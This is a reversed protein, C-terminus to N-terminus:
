RLIADREHDHLALHPRIAPKRYLRLLRCLGQRHRPEAMWGQRRACHYLTCYPEIGADHLADVMRKYFDIGKQNPSGTGQPFIRPWAVSFRCTKLGIAKMIAIDEKYRHYYDDAVDGTDGNHTKGPTHSFTDWISPGRGDENVAGEVQYSATASGWLFGEPFARSNSGALGSSNQSEMHTPAAPSALPSGAITAAAAAASGLKLFDRRDM